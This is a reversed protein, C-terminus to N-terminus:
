FCQVSVVCVCVCQRTSAPLVVKADAAAKEAAAKQAAAKESDAKAEAEAKATADAAAKTEAAAKKAEIRQIGKYTCPHTIVIPLRSYYEKVKPHSSPHSKGSFHTPRQRTCSEGYTCKPKGLPVWNGSGAFPDEAHTKREEDGPRAM